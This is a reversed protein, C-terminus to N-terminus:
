SPGPVTPELLQYSQAGGIPDLLRGDVELWAHAKIEGAFKGVGVRLVPDLRRLRHGLVLAHRLCTDGWPWHRMVRRVMRVQRVTRRSPNAPTSASPLPDSSLPVGLRRAVVPLPRTRIAVEVFCAVVAAAIIERWESMSLATVANRSPLRM